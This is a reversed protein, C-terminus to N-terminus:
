AWVAALLDLDIQLRVRAAPEYLVAFDAAIGPEDAHQLIAVIPADLDCASVSGLLCARTM